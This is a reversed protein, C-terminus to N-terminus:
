AGTVSKWVSEFHYTGATLRYVAYDPEARLGPTWPVQATNEAEVALISRGPKLLARVDLPEPPPCLPPL